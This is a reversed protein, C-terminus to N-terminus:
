QWWTELAALRLEWLNQLHVGGGDRIDLPKPVCLYYHGLRTRVLRSHHELTSPLAEHGYLAHSNFLDAYLGRKHGWHKKLVTISQSEAKKKSRFKFQFKKGNVVTAKHRTMVGATIVRWLSPTQLNAPTM